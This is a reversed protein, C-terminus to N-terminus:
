SPVPHRPTPEARNDARGPRTRVCDGKATGLPRASKTSCEGQVPAAPLLLGQDATAGAEPVPKGPATPPWAPSPRTCALARRIPGPNQETKRPDCSPDDPYLGLEPWM